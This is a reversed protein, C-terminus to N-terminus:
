GDGGLLQVAGGVFQVGLHDLLRLGFDFLQFLLLPRTQGWFCGRDYKKFREL